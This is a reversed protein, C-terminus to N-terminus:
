FMRSCVLCSRVYMGHDVHAIVSMNRINHKKDMLARLQDITFKVMTSSDQVRVGFFYVFLAPSEDAAVAKYSQWSTVSVKPTMIHSIYPRSGLSIESSNCVSTSAIPNRATMTGNRSPVPDISASNASIVERFAGQQRLPM